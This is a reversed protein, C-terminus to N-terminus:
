LIQLMNGYPNLHYFSMTACV